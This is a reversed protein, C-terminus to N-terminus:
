ELAMYFKATIETVDYTGYLVRRSDLLSLLVNRNILLLTLKVHLSGPM